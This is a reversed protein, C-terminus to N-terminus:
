NHQDILKKGLLYYGDGAGELGITVAMRREYRKTSTMMKDTMREGAKLLIENEFKKERNDEACSVFLPSIIGVRIVNAMM